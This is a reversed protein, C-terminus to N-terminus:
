NSRSGWGARSVYAIEEKREKILIRGLELEFRIASLARAIRLLGRLSLSDVIKYARRYDVRTM